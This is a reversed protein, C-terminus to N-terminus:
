LSKIIEALPVLRSESENRRKLEVSNEAVTKPSITLRIPVGILDADAFKAGASEDRDDYLVDIHKSTLEEYLSDAVKVVEADDGIRVMHVKFPAVAEPWIIGRDDHSLEAIVGMVRAPGIGYSGMIVPKVEGNEDTFKLDLEESFRTGLTFINGVESAKVQELGDKNLGLDAVVEDSYVEENVAMGKERDLYLVDEGTETLAQFEHSYKAFSGGSAFTLFTHDGLGLRQFTRLYVEKMQEYFHDHEEQTRSFSYLDKMVFERTRMIGTKARLENRFKTQFQYPYVPLDRYSSVFERMVGTLAEEHSWGLGLETGSHLKTKFWIDVAKDDWRGSAEWPEKPQLSTMSLEQGGAANMEERIIQIINNLVRLGLPLMVYAGAMQKYIFGGRLLLQASVATEDKPAQKSTKTFLQSFRM